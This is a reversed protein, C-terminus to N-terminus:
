AVVIIVANRDGLFTRKQGMTTMVANRDGLFTRKQGM